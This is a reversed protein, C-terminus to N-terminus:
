KFLGLTEEHQWHDALTNPATNACCPKLDKFMTFGKGQHSKVLIAKNVISYRSFNHIFKKQMWQDFAIYLFFNYGM